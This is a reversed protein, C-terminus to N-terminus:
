VSLDRQSQLPWNAKTQSLEVACRFLEDANVLKAAVKVKFHSNDGGGGGGGTRNIM